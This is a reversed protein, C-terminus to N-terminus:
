HYKHIHMWVANQNKFRRFPEWFLRVPKPTLLVRFLDRLKLSHALLGGKM